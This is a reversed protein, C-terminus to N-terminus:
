SERLKMEVERLKQDMEKVQQDLLEYYITNEEVSNENEILLRCIGLINALPKRVQHSNIFALEKSRTEHLLRQYKSKQKTNRYFSYIILIVLVTAGISAFLIIRERHYALNTIKYAAYLRDQRLETSLQDVSRMEIMFAESEALALKFYRISTLQDNKEEAIRAILQYANLRLPTPGNTEDNLIQHAELAASDLNKLAYLSNALNWRDVDKYYQNGTNLLDRMLTIAQQYHHSLILAYYDLRKRNRVIGHSEAGYKGILKRYYNLSDRKDLKFFIEAKNLYILTRLSHRLNQDEVKKQADNLYVLAQQYLGIATFIDSIGVDVSLLLGLDSLEEAIRKAQRYNFIAASANHQDTKVYALNIYFQYLLYHEEHRQANTIGDLLAKEAAKLKNTRRLVFIEALLSLEKGGSVRYKKVSDAMQKLTQDYESSFLFRRYVLNTLQKQKSFKDLKASLINSLTDSHNQPYAYGEFSMLILFFLLIILSRM